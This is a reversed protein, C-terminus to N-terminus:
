SAKGGLMEARLVFAGLEIEGGDPVPTSVNPPCEVVAGDVAVVRTGNTSGLDTVQLKGGDLHVEAHTKSVSSEDSEVRVALADPFGAPPEPDRGFVMPGGVDVHETEGWSLRWVGPRARRPVVRTREDVGAGQDPELAPLAAVAPAGRVPEDEHSAEPEEHTPAEPMLALMPSEVESPASSPTPSGWTPKDTPLLNTKASRVFCWSRPDNNRVTNAVIEMYQMYVHHAVMRKRGVPIFYWLKTQITTYNIITSSMARHDGLDEIQVAFHMPHARILAPGRHVDYAQSGGKWGLGDVHMMGNWHDGLKEAAALDCIESLDKISLTTEIELGDGAYRHRRAM